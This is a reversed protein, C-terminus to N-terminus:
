SESFCDSNLSATPPAQRDLSISRNRETLCFHGCDERFSPIFNRCFNSCEDWNSTELMKFCPASPSM